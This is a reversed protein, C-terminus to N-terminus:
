NRWRLLVAQNIVTAPLVTVQVTNTGTAGMDDRVTLRFTYVGAILNSINTTASNPSDINNISPGSVFSWRYSVITGDLDNGSGQLITSNVPLQITRNTDAYATPVQNPNQVVTIQKSDVATDSIGGSGRVWLQVIYAGQITMGSITTQAANPTAFVVAVPGSLFRWNYATISGSPDNSASGDGIATSAPQTITTDNGALANPLINPAASVTITLTASGTDSLNDTVKLRAQYVGQILNGFTTSVANPTTTTASNPGTIFWQYSIITGDPDSSGSGNVTATNTPLTIIQNAGPVSVPPQNPPPIAPSAVINLGDSASNGQSNLVTFQVSYTGVTTINNITTTLANPTGFTLVTPGATQIWSYSVLTGTGLTATATVSTSTTPLTIPQDAGANATPQVVAADSVVVQMFDTASDGLNNKVTFKFSYSGAITLNNIVTSASTPSVISTTAPGSIQIWSYTRSTGSGNTGSGTATATTIPLTIPQDAGADATPPTNNAAIVTIRVTDKGTLGDNDTVTLAFDYVGVALGGVTATPTSAPMGTVAAGAVKVWSYSVISGDLDTGSGHLVAITTPPTIVTTDNGAMAIPNALGRFLLLSTFPQLTTTGSYMNGDVDQYQYIGLSQVSPTIYPNYLFLTTATSMAVSNADQNIFTKWAPLQVPPPNVFTGGLTVHYPWYFTYTLNDRYYNSDLGNTPFIARFDNQITVTTPNNLEGNQYFIDSVTAYSINKIFRLNRSVPYPGPTPPPGTWGPRDIRYGIRTLYNTNYKVTDTQGFNSFYAAGQSLNFISNHHVYLNNSGADMYIGHADYTTGPTTFNATGNLAGIGNYIINYSVNVNNYTITGYAGSTYIGGGDDKVFCYNSIHNYRVNINNAAFVLPNYSVSDITNYEIYSGNGQVGIGEYHSDGNGGMGAYLGIRRITDYRVIAPYNGPASFDMANDLCNTVKNYNATLVPTAKISMGSNCNNISCNLVQINGGNRGFIAVLNAGEFNLNTITIYSQSGMNFLTDLTSVKITYSAPNNAGFYISLDKTNKNLFWEGFQDLTNLFNTFFYGYGVKGTYTSGGSQAYSVTGASHNTVVNNDIIWHQKRIVVSAGTYNTTTSLAPGTISPTNANLSSIILYGSNSADPNPFRGMRQLNDDITVTNLTSKANPINKVYVGTTSLTWGGFTQFGTITAKTLGGYTGFKLTNGVTGSKPCVITGYFTDGSRFLISDGATISGFITNLKQISRYPAGSTGTGTTDNGLNSFCWNRGFSAFAWFLLITLTICQKM